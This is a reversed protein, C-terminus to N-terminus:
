GIRFGEKKLVEKDTDIDSGTTTLMDGVISASVGCHLLRPFLHAILPRGGALRIHAQPNVIRFLAATTLVEDDTLRPMNELPTGPIPNLINLPISRIELDRLTVALEIRQAMSEGMGIIGGSCLELGAERARRLTQIKEETTHTTCLEPFYSPASELNCHYREVGAEKLRRLQASTLLGMSACLGIKVKRGLEEYIGCAKELDTDSLTRGSTVLSFRRVGKAANHAALELAEGAGILPYVDVQTRHFRSQSCWKCNESCRGSRANIISCTDFGDGLFHTRLRGAMAWLAEHPTQRELEVAEGYEMRYGEKIRQELRDNM